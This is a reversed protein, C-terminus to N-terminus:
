GCILQPQDSHSRRFRQQQQQHMRGTTTRQRVSRRLPPIPDPNNTYGARRLAESLYGIVFRGTEQSQALNDSLIATRNSTIVIQVVAATIVLGLVSAIMLEILTMGRQVTVGKTMNKM